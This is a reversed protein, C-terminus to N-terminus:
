NKMNKKIDEQPILESTNKIEDEEKIEEVDEEEEEEEDSIDLDQVTKMGLPNLNDDLLLENFGQTFQHKDSRDRNITFSCFPEKTAKEFVMEFREDGLYGSLEEIIKKKEKTNEQRFLVFSNFNTRFLPPCRNFYQSLLIFSIGYHRRNTALINLFNDEKRSFRIIQNICDDLIVLTKIKDQPSKNINKKAIEKMYKELVGLKRYVKKIDLAEIMDKAEPDLKATPSIFLIEDFADMYAEIISRAFTTKGAKVVGLIYMAFPIDPLFDNPAPITDFQSDRYLKVEFRKIKKPPKLNEKKEIDFTMNKIDIGDTEEENDDKDLHIGRSNIYSDDVDLLKKLLALKNIRRAM